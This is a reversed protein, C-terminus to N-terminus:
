GGSSSATVTIPGTRATEQCSDDLHYRFEYKGPETPATLTLTGSTAGRTFESWGHECSPAGITFLGIWDLARGRSTTWSVSLQGGATVTDASSTLTYTELPAPTQQVIPPQVISPAVPSRSSDCGAFAQVGLLLVMATGAKNAM